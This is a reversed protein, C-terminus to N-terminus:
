LPEPKSFLYGQIIHLDTEKLRELQERNEVGEAVIEYGYLGAIQCLLKVMEFAKEDILIKDIFSKDIKLEDFEIQVLSNLSSYGTGFDDIALRVGIQHLNRAIKQITELEQVFVDETMELILKSSPVSFFKLAQSVRDFFTAKLFSSPTVNISLEIQEGYKTCLDHYQELTSDIMYNTFDDTLNMEVILPLFIAPSIMGRKPSQWRALAEVGVVKCSRHDIKAQYYPIIEHNQIAETLEQYLQIKEAMEKKMKDQYIQSYIGPSDKILNMVLTSKEFLEEFNKGHDPFITIAMRFDSTIGYGKNQIFNSLSKKLSEISAHFADDNGIEIFIAFENSNARSCHNASYNFVLFDGIEKILQNGKEFGMLANITKLGRINILVFAASSIETHIMSDIHNKMGYVNPLGTMEDHYALYTIEKNKNQLNEENEQLHGIMRNYGAVLSAMDKDIKQAKVQQYQGDELSEMGGLLLTIPQTISNVYINILHVLIFVLFLILLLTTLLIQNADSNFDVAYASAVVIWDWEAFYHGYSYKEGVQDSNLLYWNYTMFGGESNEKALKIQEQVIYRDSDTADTIDWVNQGELNPHMVENGLSDYIIFYGNEGLNIPNDKSRTGDDKLPGLLIQKVAEQGETETKYGNQCNQYEIKIVDLAQETSNTLIQRGKQNLSHQAIFFSTFGVIVTALLLIIAFNAVLKNHFSVDLLRKIM